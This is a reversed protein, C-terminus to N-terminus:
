EEPIFFDKAPLEKKVEYTYKERLKKDLKLGQEKLGVNKKRKQAAEFQKVHSPTYKKANCIRIRLDQLDYDLILYGNLISDYKKIRDSLKLFPQLFALLSVLVLISKWM